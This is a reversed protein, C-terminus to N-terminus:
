MDVASAQVESLLRVLNDLGLLYGADPGCHRTTDGEYGEHTTHAFDIMRVDVRPPSPVDDEESEAATGATSSSHSAEDDEHSSSSPSSGEYIVLLSSSYFRFSNQREVARRLGLLRQTVLAALDARLRYGDHFFQRLCHRLGRDDLRRGYYKDRCMFSGSQYVQMGCIRVGLSASTSAACKAMQRHRKEETADDGHQRTGMKLDLICPRRFHSVVNELLLLYQSGSWSSSERLLLREENCSCIQVRLQSAESSSPKGPCWSEDDEDDEDESAHGHHVQIVGKYAPVFPRMERPVHLYFHLERPILPKCLTGPDLLLMRSHGGVQHAFPLLVAETDGRGGSAMHVVMVGNETWPQAM